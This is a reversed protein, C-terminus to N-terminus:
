ESGSQLTLSTGPGGGHARDPCPELLLAPPEPLGDEGSQVQVFPGGALVAEDRASRPAQTGEVSRSLM